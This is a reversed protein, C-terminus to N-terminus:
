DLKLVKEKCKECMIGIVNERFQNFEIKTNSVNIIAANNLEGTIKALLEITSGLQRELSVYSQIKKADVMEDDNIGENVKAINMKLRDIQGVIEDVKDIIRKGIDGVYPAVASEVAPKVHNNLHRYWQQVSLGMQTAAESNSMLGNNLDELIKDHQPAACAKCFSRRVPILSTHSSTPMRM